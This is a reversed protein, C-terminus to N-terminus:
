IPNICLETVYPMQWLQIESKKVSDGFRLSLAKRCANELREVSYKDALRLISMCTKYGLQETKYGSLVAKIVIETNDGIKAAQEIFYEGNWKIYQQHEPRMHSDVTSYQEPRGYLRIHSCIRNEEFFVEVTLRVDVKQRSM